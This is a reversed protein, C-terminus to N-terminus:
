AVAGFIGRLRAIKEEQSLEEHDDDFKHLQVERKAYIEPYRRELLWAAAQWTRSAAKQIIKVNTRAFVANAKEVKDRFEPHEKKWNSITSERVGVLDATQKQTMGISILKCIAAIIKPTYAPLGNRKPRMPLDGGKRNGNGDIPGIMTRDKGRLRPM